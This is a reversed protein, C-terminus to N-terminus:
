LVSWREQKSVFCLQPFGVRSREHLLHMFAVTSFGDILHVHSLLCVYIGDLPDL